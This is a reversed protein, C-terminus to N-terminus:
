KEILNDPANKKAFNAMFSGKPAEIKFHFSSGAFREATYDSVSTVSDPFCYKEIETFTIPMYWCSVGDPVNVILPEGRYAYMILNDKAFREACSDHGVILVMSHTSYWAGQEIETVTDPIDYYDFEWETNYPTDKIAFTDKCIKTIKKPIYLINQSNRHQYIKELDVDVLEGEGKEIFEEPRYRCGIQSEIRSIVTEVIQNDDISYNRNGTTADPLEEGAISDYGIPRGTQIDFYHLQGSETTVRVKVGSSNAYDASVTNGEYIALTQIDQISNANFEKESTAVPIYEYGSGNAEQRLIIWSKDPIPEDIDMEMSCCLEQYGEVDNPLLSGIDSEMIIRRNEDNDTILTYKDSSGCSAVLLLSLMVIITVVISKVINITKSMHPYGKQLSSM